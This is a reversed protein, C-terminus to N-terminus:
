DSIKEPLLEQTPPSAIVASIMLVWIHQMRDVFHDTNLEQFEDGKTQISKQCSNENNYVEM